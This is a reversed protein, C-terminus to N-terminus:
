KKKPLYKEFRFRDQRNKVEKPYDKALYVGIKAAWVIFMILVLGFWFRMGLLPIAEYTFFLFLYGLLGTVTLLKGFRAAIGARLADRKGLAMAVVNLVIGTVLVWGLFAFIDGVLSPGLPVPRPNFWWGQDLLPKYGALGAMFVNMIM